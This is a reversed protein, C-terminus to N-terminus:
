AAERRDTDPDLEGLVVRLDFRILSALAFRGCAVVIAHRDSRAAYVAGDGTIVQIEEADPAAALLERAPAALEPAGALPEGDPTLVAVALIDASLERLYGVALEPTLAPTM